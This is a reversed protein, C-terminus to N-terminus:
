GYTPRVLIRGGTMFWSNAVCSANWAKASLRSDGVNDLKLIVMYSSM